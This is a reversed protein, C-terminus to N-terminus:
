TGSYLTSASHGFVIDANRDFAMNLVWRTSGPRALPSVRHLHTSAKLLYADGTVHNDRVVSYSGAFRTLTGAIDDEPDVRWDRCRAVWDGIYELNGGEDDASKELFVVLALEPDDLHWGHTDGVDELLNSVVFEQRHQVSHISAGVIKEIFDRIQHHFYLTPFVFSLDALADGGLVTLKRETNAGEMMFNRRVGADKIKPRQSRLFDLLDPNFFGDFRVYGDHEFARSYESIKSVHQDRILRSSLLAIPFDQTALASSM